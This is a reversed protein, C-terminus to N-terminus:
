VAVRGTPATSSANCANRVVNGAAPVLEALAAMAPEWGGPAVSLGFSRMAGAALYRCTDGSGSRDTEEVLAWSHRHEQGHFHPSVKVATWGCEPLARILAAVVATKGVGRSHGGVAVLM